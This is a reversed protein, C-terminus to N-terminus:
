FVPRKGGDLLRQTSAALQHVVPKQVIVPGAHGGVLEVPLVRPEAVVREDDGRMRRVGADKKRRPVVRALADLSKTAPLQGSLAHEPFTSVPKGFLVHAM